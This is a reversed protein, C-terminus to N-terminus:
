WIKWCFCGFVKRVFYWKLPSSRMRISDHNFLSMVQRASEWDHRRLQRYTGALIFQHFFYSKGLEIDRSDLINREELKDFVKLVREITDQDFMKSTAASQHVTYASTTIPICIVGYCAFLRIWMDFDAPAGVEPEFYGVEKFASQMIVIGPFRVFSSNSILRKLAKQPPLHLKKHFSRKKIIKGDKNVINVGFLFVQCYDSCLKITNLIHALGMSLLFDDDHLILIYKGTAHRVANNWNEVMGLNKKNYIYRWKGQYLSLVNNVVKESECTLSNDSIIIEIAGSKTVDQHVISELARKLLEPRNFTPVCISLNPIKDISMNGSIFLM